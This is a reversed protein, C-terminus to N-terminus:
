DGGSMSGDVAALWSENRGGDGAGPGPSAPPATGPEASGPPEVLEAPLKERAGKTCCSYGIIMM